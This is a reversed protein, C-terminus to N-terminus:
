WARARVYHSRRRFSPQLGFVRDKVKDPLDVLMESWSWSATEGERFAYQMGKGKVIKGIRLPDSNTLDVEQTTPHGPPLENTDRLWKLAVSNMKSAPTVRIAALDEPSAAVAAEDQAAVAPLANAFTLEVAAAVAVVGSGARRHMKMVKMRLLM